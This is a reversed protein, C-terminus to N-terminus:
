SALAEKPIPFRRQVDDIIVEAEKSFIWWNPSGDTSDVPEIGAARCMLIAMLRIASARHDVLRQEISLVESM